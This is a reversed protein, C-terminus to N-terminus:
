GPVGAPTAFARGAVLQAAADLADALHGEVHLAFRESGSVGLKV